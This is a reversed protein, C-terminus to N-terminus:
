LSELFSEIKKRLVAGTANHNNIMVSFILWNKKKTYVYGSLCLVGSMSGSKAFIFDGEKKRYPSLTGTGQHPFITTIRSWPHEARMKELVHVMDEPTFQNYRSLGSGDVWRAEQPLNKLTGTLLNRIIANEDMRGLRQQSVMALTQDAYFNDSRYMMKKLLTDTPQSFVTAATKGEITKNLTADAIGIKKGLSDSLLTLGTEIGHTIYPVSVSASKENGEFLTFRNSNLDRLVQFNKGSKSFTVPWNIDPNSYIFIDLTDGEHTPNEKKSREQFWHIQNGYVPFASRETMYEESFDNWSWGSGLPLTNWNSNVMYLPKKAARMADFLPHKEFEPHLFTPDGAPTIVLATDTETLTASILKEPLYTMAAYTTFIKTNSAPTFRKDSQYRYLFKGTEPDKVAIGVHASALVSDKILFRNAAKGIKQQTGCASLLFGLYLVGFLDRLKM